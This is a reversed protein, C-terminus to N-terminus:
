SLLTYLNYTVALVFWTLLLRGVLKAGLEGKTSM